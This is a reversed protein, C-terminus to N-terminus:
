TLSGQRTVMVDAGHLEQGALKGVEHLIRLGAGVDPGQQFVDTEERREDQEVRHQEVDDLQLEFALTVGPDGARVPRQHDHRRQAEAVDRERRVDTTHEANEHEQRSDHQQQHHEGEKEDPQEIRGPELRSDAQARRSAHRFPHRVM